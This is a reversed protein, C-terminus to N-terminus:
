SEKKPAVPSCLYTIATELQYQTLKLDKNMTMIVGALKLCIFAHQDGYRSLKDAYHPPIMTRSIDKLFVYKVINCLFSHFGEFWKIFNTGSNYVLDLIRSIEANDKKVLANLLSFYDDYNPLDLAKEVLETTVDTGFALVKDLSTIADRLGGQALRAIYSLADDTYTIQQGEKIESDLIFKLRKQINETSIKSLKFTQVRSLITGPIKEPNTTAFIWITNGVQEELCKLLSQWATNSFSHCNHVLVDSAFYSNDNEVELDYMTVYDQSLETDSFSCRFLEDNNGRQYVEVSDVRKGSSVGNEELRKIVAKEFQPRQWGGRHCAENISLRPRTQLLYSVGYNESQLTNSDTARIDLWRRICEVVSDATDYIEWQRGTCRVVPPTDRKGTQDTADKTYSRGFEDSQESADTRIVTETVGHRICLQFDNYKVEFYSDEHLTKLLDESTLLEESSFTKQMSPLCGSEDEPYLSGESVGHCMSSLLVECDQSSESVTEWLESLDETGYVIDGAVLEMAPIWGNNTFFLHDKTTIIRRSNITVCCLRTTLVSSKFIHTVVNSGSMSYVTDGTSLASIPTLGSPTSVLANSPFCEDCIIIKYKSGIPYQAAQQILERVDDVGSNSAADVEIINETNGNLSKAIIRSLTTKGTGAPGTFLFNRNSLEASECMSKVIDVVVGQGIVSDFDSPRYKNALSM